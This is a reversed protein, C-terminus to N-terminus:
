RSHTIGKTQAVAFVLVLLFSFSSALLYDLLLLSGLVFCSSMSLTSEANIFYFISFSYLSVFNLISFYNLFGLLSLFPLIKQAMNLFFSFVSILSFAWCVSLLSSLSSILVFRASICLRRLTYNLCDFHWCIQHNLHFPSILLFDHAMFSPLSFLFLDLHVWYNSILNTQFNSCLFICLYTNAPRWLSSWVNRCFNSAWVARVAFDSLSM